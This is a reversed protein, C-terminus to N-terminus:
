PNQLSKFIWVISCYSFSNSGYNCECYIDAGKEAFYTFLDYSGYRASYHHATWGNKEAMHVDFNHNDKLIKCLNLHGYLAAIHLCNRGDNDKLYIDVGVNVFCTLLDYSGNRSSYHLAKWGDKDAMHVDFNHKDKLIKCLNLHGYLAAIHLCNSGDNDKLNINAGMDAFYRFLDFSGYRASFHLATWGHKDAMHADFNHKDKLIRCLKLHGYLAAIHLCNSGDNDKLNINAGMDAFYRFLDYSGYKASYHLVTWGKM